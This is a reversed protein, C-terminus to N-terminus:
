VGMSESLTCPGDHLVTHNPNVGDQVPFTVTITQDGGPYRSLHGWGSIDKTDDAYILGYRGGNVIAEGTANPLSLHAVGSVFWVYQKVPANHLGSDFRPPIVTYTANALGGLELTQTGAVGPVDSTAFPTSLQWCELVSVNDRGTLTTLNMYQDAHAVGLLFASFLASLRAM